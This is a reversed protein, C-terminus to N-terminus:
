GFVLMMGVLLLAVLVVRRFTAVPITQVLRRGLWTGLFSVPIALAIITWLKADLAVGNSLYIPIRTIDTAIALAAATAVYREKPLAFANLFLARLAGGTGLIGASIGSAVGGALAVRLKPPLSAFRHTLAYSSYGVLFLGLLLEVAATDLNVWLTAGLFSCIISTAGFPVFIPWSVARFLTVKWVNGVVHLIAVVLIAAKVELFFAAAPTLTTATGFGAITGIVDAVLVVVLFLATAAGGMAENYALHAYRRVAM